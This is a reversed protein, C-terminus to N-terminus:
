RFDGGLWSNRRRGASYSIEIRAHLVRVLHFAYVYGIESRLRATSGPEVSTASTKLGEAKLRLRPARRAISAMIRRTRIPNSATAPHPLAVSRAACLAGRSAVRLTRKIVM